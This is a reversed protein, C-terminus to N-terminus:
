GHPEDEECVGKLRAIGQAWTEPIARSWEDKRGREGSALTRKNPPTEGSTGRPVFSHPWLGGCVECERSVLSPM